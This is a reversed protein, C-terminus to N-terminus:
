KNTYFINMETGPVIKGATDECGWCCVGVVKREGERRRKTSISQMHEVVTFFFSEGVVVTSSYCVDRQCHLPVRFDFSALSYVITDLLVLLRSTSCGCRWLLGVLLLIVFRLVLLCCRCWRVVSFYVYWM